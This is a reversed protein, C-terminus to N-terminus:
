ATQKRNSWVTKLQDALTMPDVPKTIVALAGDQLLQSSFEDEAKATLFVAPIAKLAPRAQLQAFLERGSMDPMMVDLLFLQPRLHEVADLTAQGSAFQTLEMSGVTEIALQIITRIDADDDVHIIHRLPEKEMPVERPKATPFEIIVAQCTM